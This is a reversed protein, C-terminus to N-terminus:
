RLLRWARRGLAAAAVALGATLGAWVGFAGQKLYLGLLWSLPLAVVWWAVFAFWAPARVDDMGRLAGASVVQLGDCLQFAGALLLLAAATEIVDADKVFLGALERGWGFFMLMSLTMFGAGLLWGGGLIRRLRGRQNAGVAEGVRVALAMSVGLPVMFATGACTIAVQHAALATVGLTGIMLSSIAFASVEVLSHLSAPVGITLLSVFGARHCRALWRRPMWERLSPARCLWILLAAATAVRAFLTSYAAGELGLAPLGWRGHILLWNGLVNLAAGGLMIWFAPWPRNLADAHNKWVMSLFAPIMSFACILFYAPVRATVEPPQNFLRLFPTLALAAAVTVAAFMVALWTGHRLAEEAHDPRRGGRAQSVRVSVSSLLGIGLVLPVVLLTNAFTAAGLAVKGIGGIMVTDAVGILMQSLQGTILPLALKFTARTEERFGPLAAPAGPPGGPNELTSSSLDPSVFSSM